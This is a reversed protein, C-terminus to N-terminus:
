EVEWISKRVALTNSGAATNAKEFASNAQIYSSNATDFAANAQAFVTSIGEGSVTNALTFAANAHELVDFGQQYYKTAEIQGLEDRRVLQNGIGQWTASEIDQTYHKGGIAVVAGDKDGIWLKNSVNSYAPEGVNLSPPVATVDSYKLIIVTNQSIAM